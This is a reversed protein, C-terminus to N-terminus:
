NLLIEMETHHQPLREFIEKLAEAEAGFVKILNDFDHVMLRINPNIYSTCCEWFDDLTRGYYHPFGFLEQVQTHFDDINTIVSGDLYLERKM